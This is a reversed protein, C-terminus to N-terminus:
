GPTYMWLPFFITTFYYLDAFGETKVLLGHKESLFVHLCTRLCSFMFFMNKLFRFIKDLFCTKRDEHGFFMYKMDLFM